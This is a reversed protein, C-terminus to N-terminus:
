GVNSEGGGHDVFRMQFRHASHLVEYWSNVGLLGMLVSEVARCRRKGRIVYNVMAPTKGSAEAIRRQSVGKQGLMFVLYTYLEINDKEM